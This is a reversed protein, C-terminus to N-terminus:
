NIKWNNQFPVNAVSLNKATIVLTIQMPQDNVADFKETFQICYGKEFKVEQLKSMADRRYFILTGDKSKEPSLMWDAFTSTGSSELTLTIEGGRIGGQPKGTNDVKQNFNYTCQLITHVEGDMELKALFSSM